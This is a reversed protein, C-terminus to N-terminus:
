RCEIDIFCQLVSCCVSCCVAISLLISCCLAVCPLGTCCVAVDQVAPPLLETLDDVFLTLLVSCCVVVCVAICQLM